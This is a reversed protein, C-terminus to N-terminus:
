NYDQLDNFHKNAVSDIIKKKDSESALEFSDWGRKMAENDLLLVSYSLRAKVLKIRKSKVINYAM